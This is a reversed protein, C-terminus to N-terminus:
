LVPAKMLQDKLTQFAKQREENWVYEIDKKLLQNLSAAIKSYNEVFRRYYGVCGLFGQLEKLNTPVELSIVVAIKDFDM